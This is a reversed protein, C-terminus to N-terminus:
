PSRGITLRRDREDSSSSSRDRTNRAASFNMRKPQLPTRDNTAIQRDISLKREMATKPNFGKKASGYRRMYYQKIYSNGDIDERKDSGKSSCSSCSFDRAKRIPRTPTKEAQRPLDTCIPKVTGKKNNIVRVSYNLSTSSKQMLAGSVFRSPTFSAINRSILLISLIILLVSPSMIAYM